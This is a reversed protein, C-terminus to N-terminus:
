LQISTLQHVFQVPYNSLAQQCQETVISEVCPKLHQIFVQPKHTLKALDVALLEATYHGSDAALQKKDNPYSVEVIIVYDIGSQNIRQWIKDTPGTDGFFCLHSYNHSILYAYSDVTHSLAVAEIQYDDIFFPETENVSNFQIIPAEPSPLQSFDPWVQWNFLSNKLANIVTEPAHVQITHDISDYISALMLAFGAIHDLHAHTLVLHRIDRMQELTLDGVGTGGDLLIHEDLLYSTTRLNKGIGGSCGLVKLKM